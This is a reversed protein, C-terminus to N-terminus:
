VAGPHGFLFPYSVHISPILYMFRHYLICSDITYSVHISPILYSSNIQLLYPEKNESYDFFM